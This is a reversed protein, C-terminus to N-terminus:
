AATLEAERFWNGGAQTTCYYNIGGDDVACTKVIALDGFPTTVRQQLKFEFKTEMDKREHATM